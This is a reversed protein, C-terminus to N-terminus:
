TQVIFNCNKSHPFKKELCNVDWTEEPTWWYLSYFLLYVAICIGFLCDNLNWIPLIPSRTCNRRKGPTEDESSNGPMFVYEVAKPCDM